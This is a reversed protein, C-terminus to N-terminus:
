SHPPGLYPFETSYDNHSAVGDTVKPTFTTIIFGALGSAMMSFSFDVVDYELARGGCTTHPISTAFEFEVALYLGCMAKTTDLILQDNALVGALTAYSTPAPPNIAMAQNGCGNGSGMQNTQLCDATCTMHGAPPPDAQAEGAECIGNGCVNSDLADILALNKAFETANSTLWSMKNGDQNYANKADKGAQTPDFGHNLATNVAPRGVRDIQAGLTPSAPIADPRADPLTKNDGCGVLAVAAVVLSKIINM